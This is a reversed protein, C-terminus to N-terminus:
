FPCELTPLQPQGSAGDNAHGTHGISDEIANASRRVVVSGSEIWGQGGLTCPGFWRRFLDVRGAQGFTNHVLIYYHGRMVPPRVWYPDAPDHICAM